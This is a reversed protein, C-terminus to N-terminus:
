LSTFGTPFDWSHWITDGGAREEKWAALASVPLFQAWKVAPFVVHYGTLDSPWVNGRPSTTIHCEDMKITFAFARTFESEQAPAKIDQTMDKPFSEM